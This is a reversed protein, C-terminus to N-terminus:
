WGIAFGFRGISFGLIGARSSYIFSRGMRPGYTWATSTGGSWAHSFGSYRTSATVPALLAGLGGSYRVAYAGTSWSTLPRRRGPPVAPLPAPRLIPPLPSIGMPVV